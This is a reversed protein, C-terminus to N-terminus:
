QDSVSDACDCLVCARSRSSVMARTCTPTPSAPRHKTAPRSKRSCRAAPEWLGRIPWPSAPESWQWCGGLTANILKAMCGVFCVTVSLALSFTRCLFFRWLLRNPWHPMDSSAAKYLLDRLAGGRLLEMVLMPGLLYGEREYAQKQEEWRTPHVRPAEEVDYDFFPSNDVAIPQVIHM